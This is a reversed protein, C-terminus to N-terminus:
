YRCLKNNSAMEPLLKELVGIEIDGEDKVLKMCLRCVNQEESVDIPQKEENEKLFVEMLDLQLAKERELHSIITNETDLCM